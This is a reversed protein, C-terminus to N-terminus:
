KRRYKEYLIIKNEQFSRQCDILRQNSSGRYPLTIDRQSDVYRGDVLIDCQKIIQQCKEYLSDIYSEEIYDFDDSTGSGKNIFAM